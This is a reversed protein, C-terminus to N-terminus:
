LLNKKATVTIGKIATSSEALIIPPLMIHDAGTISFHRGTFPRFGMFTAKVFYTGQKLQSFSFRGSPETQTGAVQSSDEAKRLSVVVGALAKGNMDETKGSVLLGTGTGSAQNQRAPAAQAFARNTSAILPICLM